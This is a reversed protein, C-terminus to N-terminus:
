VGEQSVGKGSGSGDGEEELKTLRNAITMLVKAFVTEMESARQADQGERAGGDQDGDSSVSERTRKSAPESCESVETPRREQRPGERYNEKGKKRVLAWQM